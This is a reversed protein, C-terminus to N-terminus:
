WPRGLEAAVLPAPLGASIFGVVMVKDDLVQFDVMLIFALQKPQLIEPTVEKCGHCDKGHCNKLAKLIKPM